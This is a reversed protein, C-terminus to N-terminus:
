VALPNLNAPLEVEFERESNQLHAALAAKILAEPGVSEKIGAKGWIAHALNAGNRYVDITKPRLSVVVKFKHLKPEPAPVTIQRIPVAVETPAKASVVLPKIELGGLLPPAIPEVRSRVVVSRPDSLYEAARRLIHDKPLIYCAAKIPLCNPAQPSLGVLLVNGGCEFLKHGQFQGKSQCKSCQNSAGEHFTILDTRSVEPQVQVSM